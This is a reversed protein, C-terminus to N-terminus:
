GFWHDLSFETVGIKTKEMKQRERSEVIMRAYHKDKSLFPLALTTANDKAQEIGTVDCFGHKECENTLHNHPGM